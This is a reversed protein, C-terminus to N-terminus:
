QTAQVPIPGTGHRAVVQWTGGRRVWVDTTLFAGSWDQGGVSAEQRSRGHVVAVEGFPRVLLELWEFATCKFVSTANTLWADNPMLVGRASTLVFDDALISACAGIDGNVWAQM